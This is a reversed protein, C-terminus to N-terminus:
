REVSLGETAVTDRHGYLNGISIFLHDSDGTRIWGGTLGGSQSCALLLQLAALGIDSWTSQEDRVSTSPDLELKLDCHGRSFTQPLRYVSPRPSGGAPEPKFTASKM